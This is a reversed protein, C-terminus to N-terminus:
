GGSWIKIARFHSPVKSHMTHCPKAPLLKEKKTTYLIISPLRNHIFHMFYISSHDIFTKITSSAGSNNGIEVVRGMNVWDSSGLVQTENKEGQEAREYSILLWSSKTRGRWCSGEKGLHLWRVRAKEVRVQVVATPDWDWERWDTRQGKEVTIKRFHMNSCPKFGNPLEENGEFHTLVGQAACLGELTWGRDVEWQVERPTNHWRPKGEEEQKGPSVWWQKLARDWYWKEQNGGRGVTARLFGQANGGRHRWHM